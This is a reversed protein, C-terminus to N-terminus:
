HNSPIEYGLSHLDNPQYGEVYIHHYHIAYFILMIHYLLQHLM